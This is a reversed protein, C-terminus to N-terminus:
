DPVSYVKVSCSGSFVFSIPAVAAVKEVTGATLMTGGSDTASELEEAIKDQFM